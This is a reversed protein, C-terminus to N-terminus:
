PLKSTEVFLLRQTVAVSLRFHNAFQAFLEPELLNNVNAVSRSVHTSAWWRHTSNM